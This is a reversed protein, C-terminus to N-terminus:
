VWFNFAPHLICFTQKGFDSIFHFLFLINIIYYIIYLCRLKRNIIDIFSYLNSSIGFLM